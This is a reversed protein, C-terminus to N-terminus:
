RRCGFPILYMLACALLVQLANSVATPDQPGGANEDLELQLSIQKGLAAEISAASGGSRASM